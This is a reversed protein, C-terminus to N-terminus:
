FKLINRVNDKGTDEGGEDSGSKKEAAKKETSEKKKAAPQEKAVPASPPPPPSVPAAVQSPPPVETEDRPLVSGEDADSINGESNIDIEMLRKLQSADDLEGQKKMVDCRLSGLTPPYLGVMMTEDDEDPVPELALVGAEIRLLMADDTDEEPLWALRCIGAQGGVIVRPCQMLIGGPLRMSWVDMGDGMPRGHWADGEEMEGISWGRDGTSPGWTWSTGAWKKHWHFPPVGRFFKPNGKEPPSAEEAAASPPGDRLAERCVTTRFLKLGQPPCSGPEVGAEWVPAHQFIVRVRGDGQRLVLETSMAGSRLLTPGCVMGVSALRNRGLNGLQYQAVPMSQVDDSDFCTECDAKVSGTVIKHIQTCSTGGDGGDLHLDVAAVTSDLVDGIYNYTTWTGRWSGLAHHKQFLDWQLAADEAPSLRDPNPDTGDASSVSGGGYRRTLGRLPLSSPAHIISTSPVVFASTVESLCWLPLLLAAAASAAARRTM